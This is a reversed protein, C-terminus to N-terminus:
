YYPTEFKLSGQEEMSTGELILHKLSSLIRETVRNIHGGSYLEQSNVSGMNM